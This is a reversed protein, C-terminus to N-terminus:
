KEFSRRRRRSKSVVVFVRADVAACRPVRCLLGGCSIFSHADSTSYVVGQMACLNSAASTDLTDRVEVKLRDGAAVSAFRRPVDVTLLDSAIRVLSPNLGKVTEVDAYWSHM